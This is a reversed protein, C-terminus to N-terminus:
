IVKEIKFEAKYGRRRLEDMISTFKKTEIIRQIMKFVEDILNNDSMEEIKM